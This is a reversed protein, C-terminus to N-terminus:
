PQALALIQQPTFVESSLYFEDMLGPFASGPVNPLGGLYPVNETDPIPIVLNSVADPVGNIYLTASNTDYTVAVHTWQGDTLPSNSKVVVRNSRHGFSDTSVILVIYGDQLILKTSQIGSYGDGFLHYTSAPALNDPYLWTAITL